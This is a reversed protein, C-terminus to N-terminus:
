NEVSYGNSNLLSQVHAKMEFYVALLFLLWDLKSLTHSGDVNEVHFLKLNEVDKMIYLM